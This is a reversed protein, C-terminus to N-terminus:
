VNWKQALRQNIYIINVQFDYLTLIILTLHRNKLM